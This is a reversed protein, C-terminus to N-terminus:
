LSRDSPLPRDQLISKDPEPKNLSPDFPAALVAGAFNPMDKKLAHDPRVSFTAIPNLGDRQSINRVLNDFSDTVITIGSVARSIQVYASALTANRSSLIGIPDEAMTLGQSRHTTMAYGPGVFLMQKDDSPLSLARGSSLQLDIRGNSEGIIKFGDGAKVDVAPDTNTREFVYTAGRHLQGGRDMDYPVFKDEGRRRLGNLSITALQGDAKLVTLVNGSRSKDLGVIRAHEGKGIGAASLRSHFVLVQDLRYSAAKWREPGVLHHQTMVDRRPGLKAIEGAAELHGVIMGNVVSRQEQSVTIIPRSVGQDRAAKWEDFAKAALTLAGARDGAEVVRGQLSRLGHSQGVALEGVAARLEPDSQRRVTDMVAHSIMTDLLLAFPAGATIAPLQGRDGVLALKRIELAEILRTLKLKDANDVMSAEDLVVIKGRWQSLQRPTARAHGDALRANAALFRQVTMVDFGAKNALSEKASHTPAM